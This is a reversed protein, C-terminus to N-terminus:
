WGYSVDRADVSVTAEGPDGTLVADHAGVMGAADDATAADTTDDSGAAKPRTLVLQMQPMM